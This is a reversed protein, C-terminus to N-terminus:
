VLVDRLNYRLDGTTTASFEDSYEQCIHRVKATSSKAQKPMRQKALLLKHFGPTLFAFTKYSYM